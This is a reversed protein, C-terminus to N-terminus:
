PVYLPDEEWENSKGNVPTTLVNNYKKIGAFVMFPIIALMTLLFTKLIKKM